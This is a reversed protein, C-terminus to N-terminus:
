GRETEHRGHVWRKRFEEKELVGLQLMRCDREFDSGTDEIISDGTMTFTENQVIVQSSMSKGDGCSCLLIAGVAFAALMLAIGRTRNGKM